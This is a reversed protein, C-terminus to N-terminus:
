AAAASRNRQWAIIEVVDIGTVARLPEWFQKGPLLRKNEWRWITPHTTGVARALEGLTKRNVFRWRTIPHTEPGPNELRRFVQPKAKPLKEVFALVAGQPYFWDRHARWPSLLGLLEAEQKKTGEIMGLMRVPTSCDTNLKTMRKIPDASWGIKIRGDLAAFAYVFGTM